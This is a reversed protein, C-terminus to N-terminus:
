GKKNKQSLEDAKTSILKIVDEIDGKQLISQFQSRYNQVLSVGEIIIDYVKWEDKKLMRFNIPIQKGKSLITTDIQVRDGQNDQATESVYNLIEGDYEEFTSAYSARLMRRFENIFRQKQDDTANKWTPGVTRMSLEEFSFLSAVIEEVKDMAQSRTAPNKIEPKNLEQLVLNVKSELAQKAETTSQAWAVSSPLFSLVCFLTVLIYQVIIIRRM